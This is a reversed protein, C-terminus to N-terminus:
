LQNKAVPIFHLKGTGVASPQQRVLHIPIINIFTKGKSQMDRACKVLDEIGFCTQQLRFMAVLDKFIDSCEDFIGVGRDISKAAM